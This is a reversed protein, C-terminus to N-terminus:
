TKEQTKKKNKTVKGVKMHKHLVKESIKDNISKIKDLVTSNIMSLRRSLLNFIKSCVDGFTFYVALGGIIELIVQVFRIVGKSLPISVTFTLVCAFAAITFDSIFKGFWKGGCTSIITRNVVAFVGIVAGAALSLFVSEDTFIM